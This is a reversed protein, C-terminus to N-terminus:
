NYMGSANTALCMIHWVLFKGVAGPVLSNVCQSYVVTIQLKPCMLMCTREMYNRWKTCEKGGVIIDHYALISTFQMIRVRVTCCALTYPVSSVSKCVMRTLSM